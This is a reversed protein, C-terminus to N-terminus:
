TSFKLRGHEESRVLWRFCQELGSIAVAEKLLNICGAVSCFSNLLPKLLLLELHQGSGELDLRVFICRHTATISSTADM